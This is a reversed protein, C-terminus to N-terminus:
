LFVHLLPFPVYMFKRDDTQISGLSTMTERIVKSECEGYGRKPFREVRVDGVRGGRLHNGCPAHLLVAGGRPRAERGRTGAASPAEETWSWDRWRPEPEWGRGEQAVGGMLMEVHELREVKLWKGKTALSKSLQTHKSNTKEGGAREEM